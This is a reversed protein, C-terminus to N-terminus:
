PSIGSLTDFIIMAESVKYVVTKANPSSPLKASIYVLFFNAPIMSRSLLPDLLRAHRSGPALVEMPALLFKENIHMNEFHESMLTIKGGTQGEITLACFGRSIPM